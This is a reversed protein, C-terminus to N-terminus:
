DSCSCCGIGLLLTLTLLARNQMWLKAVPLLAGFTTAHLYIFSIVVAAHVHSSDGTKSIRALVCTVVDGEHRDAVSSQM